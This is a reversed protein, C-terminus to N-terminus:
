DDVVDTWSKRGFEFGTGATDGKNELDGTIEIPDAEGDDGGNGGGNDGGPEGQLTYEEVRDAIKRLDRLLDICEHQPDGPLRYRRTVVADIESQSFGVENNICQYVQAFADELGNTFDLNETNGDDLRELTASIPDNSQELLTAAAWHGDPDDEYCPRVGELLDYLAGFHWYLTSEWLLEDGSAAIAGGIVEHEHEDEEKGIDTDITGNGNFDISSAMAVGDVTVADRLDTPKQILVRSIAPNAAPEATFHTLKVLQTTLAGNRWRGIMTDPDLTNVVTGTGFARPPREYASQTQCSPQTPHLGGQLIAMNSFSYRLTGGDAEIEALTFALEIPDAGGPGDPDYSPVSGSISADWNKLAIHIARQYEWVHWDTKGITLVAGPSFDANIVLVIFKEDVPIGSDDDLEIQGEIDERPPDEDGADINLDFFDVYVRGAHRDYQHEHKSVVGAYAPNEFRPRPGVRYWTDVDIHGGQLSGPDCEEGVCEPDEGIPPVLFNIFLTDVGNAIRAITVESMIGDHQRWIMPVHWQADGDAGNDYRDDVNLARDENLDFIPVRHPG